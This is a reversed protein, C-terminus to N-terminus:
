GFVLLLMVHFKLGASTADHMFDICFNWTLCAVFSGLILLLEFDCLWILMLVAFYIYCGQLNGTNCCSKMKM